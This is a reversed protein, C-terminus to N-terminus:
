IETSSFIWSDMLVVRSLNRHQWHADLDSLIHRFCSLLCLSDFRIIPASLITQVYVRNIYNIERHSSNEKYGNHGQCNGLKVQRIDTIEALLHHLLQRLSLLLNLM